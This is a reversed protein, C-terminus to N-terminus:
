GRLAEPVWGRVQAHVAAIEEPTRAGLVQVAIAATEALMEVLHRPDRNAFQELLRVRGGACVWPDGCDQCRMTAPDYVHLEAYRPSVSM